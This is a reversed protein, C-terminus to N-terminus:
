SSGMTCQAVTLLNSASSASLYGSHSGVRSLVRSGSSFSKRFSSSNLSASRIVQGLWNTSSEMGKSILCFVGQWIEGNPLGGHSGTSKSREGFFSVKFSKNTPDILWRLPSASRKSAIFSSLPSGIDKDIKPCGEM